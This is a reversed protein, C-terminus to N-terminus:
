CREKGVARPPVKRSLRSAVEAVCAAIIGIGAAAILYAIPSQGGLIGAVTSPLAFIGGGIILNVMLATLSWRGIARVLDPKHNPVLPNASAEVRAVLAVKSV